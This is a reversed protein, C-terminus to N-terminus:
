YNTEEPLKLLRVANDWLILRREEETLPLALFKELEEKPRWMPFDSGFLVRDAGYARIMDLYEGPTVGFATSSCDVYFNDYKGALVSTAEIWNMHGGMHGGIFITEPFAELVPELQEPNSCAYRRDGTHMLFPLRGGAIEFMRMTVPDNLAIRQMEPHLKVGHLGLELLHAVDGEVDDSYPHLTGFALCTEGAAQAAQALFANIHRVQYPTTAASCLLTRTIGAERQAELVHSISGSLDPIDVGQVVNYFKAVANSAKKAIADPYVHCHFDFIKM